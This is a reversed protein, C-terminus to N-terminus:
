NPLFMCFWVGQRWRRPLLCCTASSEGFTSRKRPNQSVKKQRTMMTTTTVTIPHPHHSKINASEIPVTQPTPRQMRVRFPLPVQTQRVRHPPPHRQHSPYHTPCPHIPAPHHHSLVLNTIYVCGVCSFALSAFCRTHTDFFCM